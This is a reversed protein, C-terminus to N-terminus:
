GLALALGLPVFVLSLLNGILVIAAVKAPEQQYYDAMMFCTVAPPLSAFLYIQAMQQETLHFMGLYQAIYAFLLSSAPCLVGGLLGIKILRWDIDLLRVGLAFMMLTIAAQTFFNLMQQIAEPVPVRLLAMTLGLIMSWIIPTNFLKWSLRHGSLLWVGFSFYVFNCVVFLIAAQSFGAAGFALLALPLGMNGCNNYIIAPVLTRIQVRFVFAALYGCVLSGFIVWLGALVLSGNAYIDFSKQSMAGFILMPTFFDMVLPNLAAMQKPAAEPRFRGYAYGFMIVGFVPIIIANIQAFLTWFSTM